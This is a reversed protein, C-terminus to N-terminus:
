VPQDVRLPLSLILPLSDAPRAATATSRSPLHEMRESGFLRLSGLDRDHVEVVARDVVPPPLVVDALPHGVLHDVGEDVVPAEPDDLALLEVGHERLLVEGVAVSGFGAAAVRALIPFILPTFYM